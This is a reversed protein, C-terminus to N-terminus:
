FRLKVTMMVTRPEGPRFHVDDVALPENKLRSTYFYESDRWAVDFLNAVQLTTGWRENQWGVVADTVAYPQSLHGGVDDLPYAGVYRVRATTFIGSPHQAIANGSLLLQPARALPLGTDRAHAWTYSADVDAHLWILPKVRVAVEGGYRRAPGIEINAGADADFAVDHDTDMWWAVGTLELKRALWFTRLGVEAGKSAAIGTFGPAVAARAHPLRFGNGYDFFLQVDDTFKYLLSAKPSPVLALRQGSADPQGTVAHLDHVVFLTEDLRLGARLSLKATLQLEEDGYLGGSTQTMALGYVQERLQRATTHWLEPSIADNRVQVGIRSRLTMEGPLQSTWKVASEGGLTTRSEIQAIQDGNLPDDTFGTFDHFLELSKHQVYLQNRWSGNALPTTLTAATLLRSSSGGDTPNFAGFVPIEGDLVAREPLLGPAYWSGAYYMALVELTNRGLPLALKTQANVRHSQGAVTFGDTGQAEFAAVISGGALPTTFIALGRRTNYSGFSGSVESKPATSRLTMRISGATASSGDEAAYAGKRADVSEILEPILFHLDLYGIGHVHSVENIPIGDVFMALDAGHDADFGRLMYQPAKGGGEHLGVVLNPVLHLFDYPVAVPGAAIDAGPITKQSAALPRQRQGAVTISYRDDDSTSAVPLDTPSASAPLEQARATAASAAVVLMLILLLLRPPM